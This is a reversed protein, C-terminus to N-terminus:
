EIVNELVAMSISEPKLKELRELYIEPFGLDKAQKGFETKGPIELHKSLYVELARVLSEEIIKTKPYNKQLEEPIKSYLSENVKGFDKGHLYSHMYEHVVNCINPEDSPGTILITRDKDQISFGRKYSELLNVTFLVDGDVRDMKFVEDVKKITREVLQRYPILAKETEKEIKPWISEFESQEVFKKLYNIAPLFDPNLNNTSLVAKTYQYPHWKFDYSEIKKNELYDRVWVRLPYMGSLNNEKDYGNYNLAAYLVVLSKIPKVIIKM